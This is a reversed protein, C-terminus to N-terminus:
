GHYGAGDGFSGYDNGRPNEGRDNLADIISRITAEGIRDARAWSRPAQRPNQPASEPRPPAPKEERPASVEITFTTGDLHLADGDRVGAARAASLLASLEGVTANDVDLQLRFSM